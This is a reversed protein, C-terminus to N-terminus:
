DLRSTSSLLSYLCNLTLDQVIKMVHITHRLKTKINFTYFYRIITTITIFIIDFIYNLTILLQIFYTQTRKFTFYFLYSHLQLLSILLLKDNINNLLTNMTQYHNFSNEDYNCILCIKHVFKKIKSLFFFFAKLLVTLSNFCIKSFM